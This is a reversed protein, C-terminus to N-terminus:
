REARAPSCGRRSTAPATSRQVAPPQSRCVVTGAGTFPALDAADNLTTSFAGPMSLPAIGGSAGAYDLAGDFAGLRLSNYSSATPALTPTSGPLDVTLTVTDSASVTAAANGFNEAAISGLLNTSASINVSQLAGLAPDFQNVAASDNWGITRDAFTFTQPTTTLTTPVPPLSPNVFYAPSALTFGGNITESLGYSGTGGSNPPAYGYQVSASAGAALQSVFTMNGPGSVQLSSLATDVTLPVSGTGVFPAEATGAPATGPAYNEATAASGSIGTLASTAGAALTTATGASPSVSMLAWGDPGLLNLSDGFKVGFSAPARDLNELIISGNIDGTLGFEVGTLAGLSPDFQSFALTQSWDTITDAITLQQAPTTVNTM